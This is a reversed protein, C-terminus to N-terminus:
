QDFREFRMLFRNMKGKTGILYTFVPLGKAENRRDKIDMEKLKTMFEENGSYISMQNRKYEFYHFSGRSPELYLYIQDGRRRRQIELYGEMKKNVMYKGFSGIGIEGESLFSIAEPTWRINVDSLLITNQLDKPFEEPAGFKALRSNFEKRDKEDLVENVAAKFAPRGMDTGQLATNSQLNEALIQGLDDSFPFDLALVLDMDMNDSNLDYDITGWSKVLMQSNEAGLSMEGEGYMTCENTNFSLYNGVGDANNLRDETTIVYSGLNEDFFLKGTAFFMQKDSADVQKSLFAAYGGVSDAELYIGSALSKTKDNPDFEPLDILINDPDVISQFAFWDTSVTPCDALIHTFGDFALAKRDAKLDVHGYYAFYPSMFFDEEQKVYAKGITTLTSDDVKIDEFRIPWPTGDKDMYEYDAMGTYSLRGQINVVGGYFSHHQTERNATIAANNLTRMKAEREIAVYGTDPFISADAVQIEPVEFSQLLSNELFFKTRGAMFRLSDQHAHVSVMESSSQSGRKEVLVSKEPIKWRAFDMYCIYQNDPFSFYDAADNLTFEGKEKDFDVIGNADDMAFGWEADEHARVQFALSPSTFKRHEFTYDGSRTEANLFEMKGKGNLGGPGHALTGTGLMGVEDYMEFPGEKQSTTYLVDNYPEWHLDVSDALVHPNSPGTTQATIEYMNTRGDTSDPFFVFDESTAYSNLYDIRGNGHLGQNSLSLQSTYTGKGGYATLGSPPTETKFGLSYDEQVKLTQPMDPFIGASTFTGEFFLGQTTINDLSDIEFPELMVYFEERNYVGGYTSPKDYYVYSHQASRFIPYESYEKQGSKNRPNDILLEGTLGQLVTKVDKLERQGFANKEFSEVKFRMSDINDMNIRFQDYNFKFANGWYSFRGATIRGDFDFNLNEHVIIEGNNPFLGVKQSDSLAVAQVGEIKLDYDLLSLRANSGTPLNSVFRIVDYDRKKEYNLVYEFVKDKMVAERETLNYKVFGLVAMQMMFIHANQESMRLYRGVEASSFNRKGFTESMRKLRYLPNELDLGALASFRAGRYYQESEFLVPSESGMNLNGLFIQDEGTNWTLREFLIDMNHYSDSFPSQGMGEDERFVNLQGSEVLYRMTVKPHYLSDEKLKITLETDQTEIKDTRLLFRNARAVVAEQNEYNFSLRAKVSDSGSGYFRSGIMSFGGVYNAGPVIDKIILDKRYSDFRPFTSSRGGRSTLKEEYHGMTPENFFLKTHLVVSDAEFDSKRVDIKYKQLEVHASDKSLGAREFFAKGGQAVIVNQIPYFVLKTGEIVTSDERFFGWIDANDFKFFPEAEFGYTFDSGVVAWRIRGDDFLINGTFTLFMSHLYDESYRAPHSGSFEELDELWPLLAKQAENKEFHVVTLLFDSWSTFSNVRKKLLNDSVKYILQAEKDTIGESQWVTLFDLMTAELVEKDGDHLEELYDRLETLYAERDQTFQRLRQGFVSSLSLSLILLTTWLKM